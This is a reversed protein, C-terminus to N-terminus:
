GTVQKSLKSVKAKIRKMRAAQGDSEIRAQLSTLTELAELNGDEKSKNAMRSVKAKFSIRQKISYSLFKGEYESVVEAPTQPQYTKTDPEGIREKILDLIEAVEPDDTVQKTLRTLNARFAAQQPATLRDFKEVRDLLSEVSKLYDQSM